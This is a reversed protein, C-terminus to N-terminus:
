KQLGKYYHSHGYYFGVDDHFLCCYGSFLLSRGSRGMRQESGAMGVGNLTFLIALLQLFVLTMFVQVYAKLKYRYQKKM